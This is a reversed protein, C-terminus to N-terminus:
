RRLNACFLITFIKEISKILSFLYKEIYYYKIDDYSLSQIMYAIPKENNQDDCKLLISIKKQETANTYIFDKEFNLKELVPASSIVKNIKLFSNGVDDKWSFYPDKKLINHIPKVIVVFDPVFIRVFNIIGMFSQVEKKSTPSPLNLIASIRVPDINIGLYSVIHDLIKGETVGFISKSPNLSIGFKRCHMLFKRLHSFHDLQNKSYATLDDIYFQIIKSILDDFDIWMARQFTARANFLGFPM